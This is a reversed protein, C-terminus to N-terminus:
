RNLPQFPGVEEVKGDERVLGEWKWGIKSNAVGVQYNGRHSPETSFSVTVRWHGRTYAVAGRGTPDQPTPIDEVEWEVYVSPLVRDSKKILEDLGSVTFYTTRDIMPDDGSRLRIHDLVIDRAKVPTIPDDTWERGGTCSAALFLLGGTFIIILSRVIGPSKRRQRSDM